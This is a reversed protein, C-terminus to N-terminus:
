RGRRVEFERFRATGAADLRATLRMSDDGAHEDVV